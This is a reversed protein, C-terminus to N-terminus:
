SYTQYKEKLRELTELKDKSKKNHQRTKHQREFCPICCKKYKVIDEFTEVTETNGCKICVYNM